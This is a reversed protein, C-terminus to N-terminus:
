SSGGKTILHSIYAPIPSSGLFCIRWLRDVPNEASLEFESRNVKVILHSWVVLNETTQGKDNRSSRNAGEDTAATSALARHDAHEHSEIVRPATYNELTNLM